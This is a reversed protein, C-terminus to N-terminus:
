SDFTLRSTGDAGVARDARDGQDLQDDQHQEGDTPDDTPQPVSRFEFRRLDTTRVFRFLERGGVARQLVPM